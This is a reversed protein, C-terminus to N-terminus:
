KKENEDINQLSKTSNAIENTNVVLNNTTTTSTIAKYNNPTFRIKLLSKLM